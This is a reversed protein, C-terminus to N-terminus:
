AAYRAVLRPIRQLFDLKDFCAAAGLDRGLRFMELSGHATVIMVNAEPCCARIEPLASLGSRRPMRLDLVVLHPLFSRACEIGTDGDDAVQVEAGAREFAEQYLTRIDPEDDCVLVRM